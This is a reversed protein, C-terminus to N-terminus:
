VIVVIAFILIIIHDSNKICKSCYDYDTACLEKVPVAYWLWYLLHNGPLDEDASRRIASYCYGLTISCKLPKRRRGQREISGNM